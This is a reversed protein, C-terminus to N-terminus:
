DETACGDIPYRLEYSGPSSAVLDIDGDPQIEWATAEVLIDGNQFDGDIAEGAMEGDISPLRVDDWIAEGSLFEGTSLPVGERGTVVFQNERGIKCPNDTVLANPDVPEQPLEELGQTSDVGSLDLAITGSLEPSVLSFATIDNTTLEQPSELSIPTGLISELQERTRIELGIAAPTVIRVRGGSGGEANTTISSNGLAAIVGAIVTVNGGSATDLADTTINSRNRLIFSNANININGRDSRTNSSITAGNELAIADADIDINGAPGTSEGSTSITAGDRLRFSSATVRLDGAAGTGLTNAFFGSPVGGDGSVGAIEITDFAIVTVTGGRGSSNSGTAAGIRSGDRLYVRDAVITVNRADGSGLAPGTDVFERLADDISLVEEINEVPLTDASILAGNTLQLEEAAISITGADGRGITTTLFAAIGELQIDTASVTLNGGNGTGLTASAVGARERISFEGTDITINGANGSGLSVTALGAFQRYEGLLRVFNEETFATDAEEPFPGVIEIFEAATVSINGGEGSGVTVTSIGGRKSDGANITLRQTTVSINGSDEGSRSQALLSGGNTLEISETANVTVSGASGMGLDSGLSSTSALARDDVILRNTNITLNGANGAAFTDAIIASNGRVITEPSTLNLDGANGDGLTITILGSREAIEIRESADISLSSARGSSLITSSSIFGGNTLQLNGTVVTLEGSQGEGIISASLLGTNVISQGIDLIDELTIQDLVDPSLLGSEIGIGLIEISEDVNIDLKGGRGSELLTISAALMSDRISLNQSRVNLDGGRGSGLTLSYLGSNVIDSGPPLGVNFFGGVVISLLQEFFDLEEGTGNLDIAGSAEISLNGSNGAGETAVVIVARDGLFLRDGRVSIDGGGENLTTSEIRSNDTLSIESGVIQIDGSRDGSVSILTDGSLHINGFDSVDTQELAITNGSVSLATEGGRVSSLEIRGGSATLQGNESL